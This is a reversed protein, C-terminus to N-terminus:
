DIFVVFQFVLIGFKFQDDATNKSTVNENHFIEYNKCVM